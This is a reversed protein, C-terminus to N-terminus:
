YSLIFKICILIVTSINKSCLLRRTSIHVCVPLVPEEICFHLFSLKLLFVTCYIIRHQVPQESSGYVAYIGWPPCEVSAKGCKFRPVLSSYPPTRHELEWQNVIMLSVKWLPAKWWESLCWKMLSWCVPAISKQGGYSERQLGLM